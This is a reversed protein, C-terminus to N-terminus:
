EVGIVLRDRTVEGDEQSGFVVHELPELFPRVDETYVDDAPVSQEILERVIDIDFFGGLAFDEGLSDQAALFQDADGLTAGSDMQALLDTSGLAIVVREDDVALIGVQSQGPIKSVFGRFGSETIIETPAGERAAIRELQLITAASTSPDSTEVTVGGYLSDTTEGGIFFASAGMWSLVDEELDLGTQAKFQGKLAEAGGPIAGSALELFDGVQGAIDDSGVAGWAGEPLARVADAGAGNSSGGSLRAATASTAEMVLAADELHATVTAPQEAAQSIPDLLGPPMGIPLQGKLVDFLPKMDFYAIGMRDQRAADMATTFRENDEVSEDADRQDIIAKIGPETAFALHGDLIAWAGDASSSYEVGEYTKTEYEVEEGDEQRENAVRDLFDRAAEEDDLTVLAGAVPLPPLETPSDQVLPQFNTEEDSGRAAATLEVTSSQQTGQFVAALNDDTMFMAFDNGLWPEIDGEFTMDEGEEALQEDMSERLKDGISACDGVEPFSALMSDCAARQEDSLEWSGEMYLFVNSPILRQTDTDDEGSTLLTAAIAGGSIVVALAVIIGLAKGRM